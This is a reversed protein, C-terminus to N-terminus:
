ETGPDKHTLGYISDFQDHPMFGIKGDVMVHAWTGYIGMVTVQTGNEYMGLINGDKDPTELLDLGTGSKNTITKTLMHNPYEGGDMVLFKTQMYGTVTGGIEVRVWGKKPEELLTVPTGAYYKGLSTSSTSAKKRLNLRRKQSTSTVFAIRANVTDLPKAAPEVTPEPTATPEVTPTPTPEPTPTPTPEVTPTPTPEVTPTATPEVTPTPTPEVTPTSTPEVTPTATPEVTPTPTPEATPTSTPEVTPTATPEPTDTPADTPEVTPTSTPELTATMTETPAETAAPADSPTFFLLCLLLLLIAILAVASAIIAIILGRRNQKKAPPQGNFPKQPAPSAAYNASPRSPTAPQGSPTQHGPVGSGAASHRVSRSHRGSPKSESGAILLRENRQKEDMAQLAATLADRMEAPSFFRQQPWYSCARCIIQKLQESGQLPPPVTASKFRATLAEEREISTLPRDFTQAFPFQQANLLRHMVLGLSYQDVSADGQEGKALEPAMFAPTGKVSLTTLDGHTWRAVGFDGLKYGSTRSVFINDPKIDRHIIKERACLILADCLDIGMRVTDGVTMGARICDTLPTLLEMRILIDWGIGSKRKIFSCDEFSVIHSTGRLANMLSIETQIERVQQDYYANITADSLGDRRMTDIEKNDAPLPIWKLAAHYREGLVDHCIRFVWGFSGKGLFADLVWENWFPQLDALAKPFDPM